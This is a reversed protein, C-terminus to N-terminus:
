QIYYSLNQDQALHWKGIFDIEFYSNLDYTPEVAINGKSDIAGWKNGQKVAAFGCSNQEKADDYKYDVVVNGDKDVYGYKGDKKSLFLTNETLVDQVKKEECNFNYYKYEDGVRVEFYGNKEDFLIFIGELKQEFKDNLIKSKASEDELQYIDASEYYKITAYKFEVKEKNELDIIGAKGDKKAILIGDDAEVLSDYQAPIKVEGTLKMLGCKGDKEFIVGNDKNKLIAKIKDYGEAIVVSGDKNVLKQKEGEKIVYMDNGHVKEIGEYKMELAKSGAYTVVGFKGEANKVIFGSKDDDGLSSIDAYEVDLVITGEDNAIGYKGDKKIKLSNEIGELTTIEEYEVPLLVKGDLNILGYKGDKKVKLVNHEFWLNGSKGTNHITEILDYGQLIEEHKANIAKTKREETEEDFDYTCIFVDRKNNPIVIFEEYSPSIIIEGNSDIVGYKNDKFMVYYRQNVIPKEETLIGRIIFVFMIIVAIAIVVAIVKKFNLQPEDEFRKGKSKSM